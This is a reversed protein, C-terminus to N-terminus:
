LWKICKREITYENNSYARRAPSHKEFIAPVASQTIAATEEFGNSMHSIIIHLKPTFSPDLSSPFQYFSTQDTCNGYMVKGKKINSYTTEERM